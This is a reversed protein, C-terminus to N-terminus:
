TANVIEIIRATVVALKMVTEVHGTTVLYGPRLEVSWKEMDLKM